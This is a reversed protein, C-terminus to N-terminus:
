IGRVWGKKEIGKVVRNLYGDNNAQVIATDEKDIGRGRTDNGKM